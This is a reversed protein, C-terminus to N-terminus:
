RPPDRVPNINKGYHLGVRVLIFSAPRLLLRIAHPHRFMLAKSDFCLSPAEPGTQSVLCHCQSSM